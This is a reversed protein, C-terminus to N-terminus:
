SGVIPPQMKHGERLILGTFVKYKLTLFKAYLLPTNQTSQCILANLMVGFPPVNSNTQQEKRKSLLKM